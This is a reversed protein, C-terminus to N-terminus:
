VMWHFKLFPPMFSVAAVDSTTSALPAPFILTNADPRTSHLYAVASGATAKVAFGGAPPVRTPSKLKKGQSISSGRRRSSRDM